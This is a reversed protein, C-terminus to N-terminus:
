GLEQHRDWELGLIEVLREQTPSMRTLVTRQSPQSRRKKPYVNIVERIGDLESLLRPLAIEVGALRVRRWLVSRLLQAMSCYLGHVRLKSDTWHNLPWWSGTTRDKMVRFVAEILYQSRYARIIQEDSWEKRNSILITKGLHTEAIQHLAATALVYALQPLGTDGAELTVRIVDALHPRRLITRCQKQVSAVSPPRGGTILGAARDALRGQLEDLRQSAKAIDNQLTLWQSRALKPNYTVVLVREAGAVTKLVRFAKVGKLGPSACPVFRGDTHPVAALEPHEKQKVSGVFKLDLSDLLRFNDASNNGKDFILTTEPVPVVPGALERFFQHFRGLVEAFQRADNRNGPYVDYFLPFQGDAACFLAYSVQRLNDRGQKNKGRAALSCRTNFTDLFTYFNTGDYGISSLDIQQRAVVDTVLDKWIALAAEPQIADMHDWFRQSRLAAPSASPFHRRLVTQSFWSWMSRKSRPNIARNIAAIALYQGTTLGQRRKPCHRDIHEVLAAATAEQWLAQALGWQFVEASLPAPGTGQCAAVIDELKGLYKQWVRRCRNDVWEWKSYYYYTHGKLQKAELREMAAERTLVRRLYPIPLPIELPFVLFISSFFNPSLLRDGCSM